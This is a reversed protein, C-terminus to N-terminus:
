EASTSVVAEIGNETAQGVYYLLKGFTEVYIKCSDGANINVVFNEKYPVFVKTQSSTNTLTVYGPIEYLTYTDTSSGTSSMVTVKAGDFSQGLYYLAEEATAVQFGISKGAGLVFKFNEKYPIFVVDKSSTNEIKIGKSPVEITEAM